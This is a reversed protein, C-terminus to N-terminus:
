KSISRVNTENEQQAQAKEIQAQQYLETATQANRMEDEVAISYRKFMSATKHGSIQMAIIQPVRAQVMATVASRRLDHFLTGSCGAKRCATAWAKRFEKIPKGSRHFVFNSLQTVGNAEFTRAERRRKIIDILKGTVPVSRGCKNKAQDPRLRIMADGDQANSWDLSAIEGRRWGTSFAFQGFDQLDAPLNERIREFEAANRFGQRANDEPLHKIYPMHALRGERVALKFAQGVIGTIRNISANKYGAALQRDIYENIRRPSLETARLHGFAESAIKLASRAQALCKGRQAFDAKLAELLDHVTSKRMQPTTFKQFGKRDVALDDLRSKLKREAVAQDTTEASERIKVGKHSYRIWFTEGRPYVGGQKRM